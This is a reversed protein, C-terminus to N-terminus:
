RLRRLVIEVQQQRDFEKILYNVVILYSNDDFQPKVDVNLLKIRPEHGVLVNTIAEKLDITTIADMPEFLLGKLNAGLGPQFPREFANTQILNKVANKIAVDDKLSVIDKRIPHPVLSLDLDSHQKKRGVVKAKKFDDGVSRDNAILIAM